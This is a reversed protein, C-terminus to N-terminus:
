LPKKTPIGPNRPYKKPTSKIKNIIMINRRIDTEPLVIEEIKEIKGGLISLCNELDKNEEELNPGKMCICKGGVKVYPLMYELLTHIPAVARSTAVDYKERYNENRAIEEARGHIAYIDKLELKNIVEQLFSIRKNLSDLLTVSIDEKFIKLPIGPFGAGTGIDIVKDEKGIKNAITLSDIFHKTIIEDEDKIATLNMKENWTILLDKYMFFQELQKENLCIDLKEMKKNIKHLFESKEM